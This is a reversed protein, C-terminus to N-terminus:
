VALLLMLSTFLPIVLAKLNFLRVRADVLNVVDVIVDMADLLADAM